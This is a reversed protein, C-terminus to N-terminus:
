NSRLQVFSVASIYVQLHHKACVIDMWQMALLRITSIAIVNRNANTDLSDPMANQRVINVLGDLVARVNARKHIVRVMRANANRKAIRELRDKTVRDIVIIGKGDLPAYVSGQRLMASRVMRVIVDNRVIKVTHAMTASRRARKVKLAPRVRVCVMSQRVNLVMKATVHWNVIKAMRSSHVHDIAYIAVGDPKANANVRGRTAFKRIIKRANM